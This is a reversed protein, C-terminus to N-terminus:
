GDEDVGLADLDRDGIKPVPQQYTTAKTMAHQVNSSVMVRIGGTTDRYLEWPEKMESSIRIAEIIRPDIEAWPVMEIDNGVRVEVHTRTASPNKKNISVPSTFEEVETDLDLKGPRTTIELRKAIIELKHLIDDMKQNLTEFQTAM